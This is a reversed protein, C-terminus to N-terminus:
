VVWPVLAKVERRYKEYEEGFEEILFQEEMRIKVLFLVFIVLVILFSLVTGTAIATGILGTLLGTYIPNRVFAYPGTRVITHNERIAPQATWNTGLHVRAWVAIALGAVLLLLGAIGVPLTRPLIFSTAIWPAVLVTAIMVICAPITMTTLVGFRSPKRKLPTRNLLASGWWYALFGAWLLVLLIDVPFTM